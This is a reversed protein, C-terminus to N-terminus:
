KEPNVCRCLFPYLLHPSRIKILWSYVLSIQKFKARSLSFDHTCQVDFTTWNDLIKKSKDQRIQVVTLEVSFLHNLPM